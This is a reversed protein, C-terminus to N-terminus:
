KRTAEWGPVPISGCCGAVPRDRSGSAGDQELATAVVPVMPALAFAAVLARALRPLAVTVM